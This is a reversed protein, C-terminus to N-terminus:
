LLQFQAQYKERKRRLFQCSNFNICTEIIGVNFAFVETRM